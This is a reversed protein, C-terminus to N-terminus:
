KEMLTVMYYVYIQNETLMNHTDQDSVWEDHDNTKLDITWCFKCQM